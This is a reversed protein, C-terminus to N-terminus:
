NQTDETEGTTVTRYGPNQDAANIGLNNVLEASPIPRLWKIEGDVGTMSAISSVSNNFALNYRVLQKTRRLDAFRTKEAYCERGREDLLLDLLTIDGFTAPVTYEPNYDNISNLTAVGARQRVANLYRWFGPTNDAMLNAEAAVLYIESRNLLVIDRFCNAKNIPDDFKRVCVGNDTQTNFQTLTQSTKRTVSGDAGITYSTVNPATLIAAKVVNPYSGKKLQEKHAALWNEAEQESVWYPFFKLNISHQDLEQETVNYPAFYADDPTNGQYFTTMFTGEYRADGKEFLYMAKESQQNRSNCGKQNTGYYGGYTGSQGNCAEELAGEVATVDYQIGWIFENNNENSPSWKAAFPQTLAIGNIANEAWQAALTFHETSTKTYTGTAADTLQTDIDWGWALYIKSLLAAVAEKSPRGSTYDTADLQCNNYIDTLDNALNQYLVGLETRPYTRNATNIYETIYPVGGFQQALCYYT